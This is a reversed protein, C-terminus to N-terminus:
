VQLTDPGSGHAGLRSVETSSKGCLSNNTKSSSTEKNKDKKLEDIEDLVLDLKKELEDLSIQMQM